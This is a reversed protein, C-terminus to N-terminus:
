CIVFIRFIKALPSIHGGYREDHSVFDQGHRVRYYITQSNIRISEPLKHQKIAKIFIINLRFRIPTKRPHNQKRQEREKIFDSVVSNLM